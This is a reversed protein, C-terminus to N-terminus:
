TIHLSVLTIRLDLLPLMHNQRTILLSLLAVWVGLVPLVHALGMCLLTLSIHSLEAVDLRELLSLSSRRPWTTAVLRVWRIVPLSLLKVRFPDPFTHTFRMSLISLPPLCGLNVLSWRSRWPWRQALLRVCGDPFISSLVM